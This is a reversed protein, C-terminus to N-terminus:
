YYHNAPKGRLWARWNRDLAQVGGPYHAQLFETTSFAQCKNQTIEALMRTMLKKHEPESMFFYVLGWAMSYMLQQPQQRWQMPDLNLYASVSMPTSSRLAQLWASNPQVMKSNASVSLREFYEALGENLWVPPYGFLGASIVHSSEHRIVGYMFEIDPAMWIVAENNISSYFGTNTKLSPAYQQLRQQFANQSALLRLNLEVQRLYDISLAESLVAFIQRTEATIKDRSFAPLKAVDELLALQFYQYKSQYQQSIEQAQEGAQWQSDGFHWRGQEDQWRYMKSNDTKTIARTKVPECRYEQPLHMTALLEKGLDTQAVTATVEAVLPQARAITRQNFPNVLVLQRWDVEGSAVGMFLQKRAQPLFPWSLLAILLLSITIRLLSRLM